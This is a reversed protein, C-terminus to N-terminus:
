TKTLIKKSRKQTHKHTSRLENNCNCMLKRSKDQLKQVLKITLPDVSKGLPKNTMLIKNKRYKRM